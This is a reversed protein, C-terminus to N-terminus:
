YGFLYHNYSYDHVSVDNMFEEYLKSEEEYANDIFANNQNDNMYEKNLHNIVLQEDEYRDALIEVDIQMM